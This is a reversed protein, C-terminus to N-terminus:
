SLQARSAASAINQNLLLVRCGLFVRRPDRLDWAVSAYASHSVHASM